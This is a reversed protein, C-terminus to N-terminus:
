KINRNVTYVFKRKDEDEDIDNSKPKPITAMRVQKFPCRESKIQM